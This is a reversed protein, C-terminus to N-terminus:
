EIMDHTEALHVVLDLTERGEGEEGVNWAEGAHRVHLRPIVIGELHHYGGTNMTGTGIGVGDSAGVVDGAASHQRLVTRIEVGIVAPVEEPLAVGDRM